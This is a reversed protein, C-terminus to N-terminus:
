SRALTGILSRDTAKSQMKQCSDFTWSGCIAYADPVRQMLRALRKLRGDRGSLHMFLLGQDGEATM